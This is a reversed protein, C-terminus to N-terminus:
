PPFVITYRVRNLLKRLRSMQRLSGVRDINGLGDFIGKPLESKSSPISPACRQDELNVLRLQNHFFDLLEIADRDLFQSLTRQVLLIGIGERQSRIDYLAVPFSEM